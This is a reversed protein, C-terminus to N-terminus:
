IINIIILAGFAMVIGLICKINLREGFLVASMITSLMLALGQSLPYLTVSDLYLASKTKFYSNLFLCVSMILIYVFMKKFDQNKTKECSDKKNLVFFALMLVSFCFVYTYLNFVAVPIEEFNKVFLKQSFDTFGNATGCVILIILSKINLKTKISNNYSSMIIASIVLLVIGAIDNGRVAENFIISGLSVPVFVGLMLFVDLMMYASQKVSVLWCIVFVATSVGSLASVLLIDRDFSLHKTYGYAFVMLLGLLVCFFMRVLNALVADKFGKTYGSTKKGCYGKTAGAILSIGLFLYGM